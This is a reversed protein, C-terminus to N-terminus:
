CHTICLRLQVFGGHIVRCGGLHLGQTLAAVLEPNSPREDWGIIVQSNMSITRSLAEGVIRMFRPSIVRNEHLESIALEDSSPSERVEGRIGDTGFLM